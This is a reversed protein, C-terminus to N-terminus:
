AAEYEDEDHDARRSRSGRSRGAKKAPRRSPYEGGFLVQVTWCGPGAVIAFILGAVVGLHAMFIGQEIQRMAGGFEWFRHLGFMSVGSAAILVVPAIRPALGLLLALPAFLEATLIIAAFTSPSPVGRQALSFALGSINTLHGYATPAFSIALIVRGALLLSDMWRAENMTGQM